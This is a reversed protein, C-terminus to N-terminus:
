ALKNVHIYVTLPLASCDFMAWRVPHQHPLTLMRCCFRTRCPVHPGIGLCYHMAALCPLLATAASTPSWLDHRM